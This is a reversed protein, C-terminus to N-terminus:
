AEFNFHEHPLRPAIGSDLSLPRNQQDVLTWGGIAGNSSWINDFVGPFGLGGKLSDFVYGHLPAPDAGPQQAPPSSNALRRHLSM